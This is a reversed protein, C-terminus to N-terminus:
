VKTALICRTGALCGQDGAQLLLWLGVGVGPEEPSRVHNSPEERELAHHVRRKEKANTEKGGPVRFDWRNRRGM